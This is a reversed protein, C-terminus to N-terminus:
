TIAGTSNSTASVTFPADGYTHSPVSFTITPAILAGAKVTLNVPGTTLTDTGVVPLTVSLTDTPASPQTVVLSTFTAGTGGVTTATLGSPTGTGSFTLTVPVGGINQGNETVSVIV